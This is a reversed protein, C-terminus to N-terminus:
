KSAVQRYITDALGFQATSAMKKAYEDYLMDEYMDQGMGNGLMDDEKNITKRMADLMQKIFLAEFDECAKYLEGNKDIAQKKLPSSSAPYSYSNNIANIQM